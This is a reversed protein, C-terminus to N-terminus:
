GGCRFAEGRLVELAHGAVELLFGACEVAAKRSGPLNVILTGMRIGAVARSLWASPVTRASMSRIMEPIGPAARDFVSATAEPTVDRPSFGTGGTTLLLDLSGDESWLRLKESILALEDPVVCYRAPLFGAAGLLELLAPGSQDEREGRSSSDSVTLVGVSYSEDRLLEVSDHPAVLGGTLVETFLGERPFISGEMIRGAHGDADDEGVATVAVVADSGLRLRVGPLLTHLEMEASIDINEGCCGHRTRVGAQEMRALSMESLMSVQRPGPGGHSDGEIGHGPVLTVVTLRKKVTGRTPSSCVGTVRVM